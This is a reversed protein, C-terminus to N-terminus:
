VFGLLGFGKNQFDGKYGSVAKEFESRSLHRLMSAFVTTHKTM